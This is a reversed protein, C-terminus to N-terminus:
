CGAISSAYIAGRPGAWDRSGCFRQTARSNKQIMKPCNTLVGISRMRERQQARAAVPWAAAGGLLSMFARRSSM